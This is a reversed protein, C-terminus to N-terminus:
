IEPLPPLNDGALPDSSPPTGLPTPSITPIEIAAPAPPTALTTSPIIPLGNNSDTSSELNGLSPTGMTPAAGLEQLTSNIENQINLDPALPVSESTPTAVLTSEIVPIATEVVPAPTMAPTPTPPMQMTPITINPVVPAAAPMMPAPPPTLPAMPTAAPTPISTITPTPVPQPTQVPVVPLPAAIPTEVPTVTPAVTAPMVQNDMFAGQVSAQVLPTTYSPTDTIQQGEAAEPNYSLYFLQIIEQTALQHGYLGIRGLQGLLHDRRPELIEKAKELIVSREVTSLDIKNKQGPLLSSPPLLGMELSSASVVVYFKKDLVNREKILEAVFGRYRAIQDRKVQNASRDEEDKLLNLYSTVDKTQSRIVIQIPYNLSNLLGAYAYMIADQEPEALLGFNMANVTIIISASGDKLLLVDDTIDHIDLFKQTTSEIVTQTMPLSM